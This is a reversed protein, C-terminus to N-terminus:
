TPEHSRRHTCKSVCKHGVLADAPKQIASKPGTSFQSRMFMDMRLLAMCPSSTCRAVMAVGLDNMYATGPACASGPPCDGNSAASPIRGAGFLADALFAADAPFDAECAPLSEAFLSGSATGACACAHHSM